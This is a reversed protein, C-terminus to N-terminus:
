GGTKGGGKLKGDAQLKALEAHGGVLTGDIFVM